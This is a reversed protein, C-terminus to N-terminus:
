IYSSEACTRWSSSELEWSGTVDVDGCWADGVMAEDGRCTGRCGLWLPHSLALQKAMEFSEEDCGQTVCGEFGGSRGPFSLDFHSVWISSLWIGVTHGINTGIISMSTLIICTVSLLRNAQSYRHLLTGPCSALTFLTFCNFRNSIRVPGLNSLFWQFLRLTTANSHEKTIALNRHRSSVDKRDSWEHRSSGAVRCFGESMFVLPQSGKDKWSTGHWGKMYHYTHIYTHRYTHTHIYTQIHIYTHTHTHIYTHIYTHMYTHICAHICAHRHTQTPIYTRVYTYIYIYIQTDTFFYASYRSYGWSKGWPHLGM